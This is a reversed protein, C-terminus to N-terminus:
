GQYTSVDIGAVVPGGLCTPAPPPSPPAVVPHSCAAVFGLLWRVAADYV